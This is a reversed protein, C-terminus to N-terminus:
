PDAKATTAFVNWATSPGFAPADLDFQGSAWARLEAVCHERVSAAVNWTYSFAGIEVGRLFDGVSMEGDLPVEVTERLTCGHEVLFTDVDSERRVGPHFPILVGAHQLLTRLYEKIRVSPEAATGNAWEHLLYGGAALVRLAETLIRQWAPTLYLLRAIVVADFAGNAFPLSEGAAAVCPVGETAGKTRLVHLMDESRDLAVVRYGAAALPIAVRGTGAAVDLIRGYRTLCAVRVIADRAADSLRSPRSCDYSAANASFFDPSHSGRQTPM